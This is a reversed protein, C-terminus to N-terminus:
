ASLRGDQQPAGDRERPSAEPRDVCEAMDGTLLYESSNAGQCADCHAAPVCHCHGCAEVPHWDVLVCLDQIM